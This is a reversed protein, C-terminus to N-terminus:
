IKARLLDRFFSAAPVAEGGLQASWPAVKWNCRAAQFKCQVGVPESKTGASKKVTRSAVIAYWVFYRSDHAFDQIQKSM